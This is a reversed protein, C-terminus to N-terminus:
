AFTIYNQDALNPIVFSTTHIKQWHTPTYLIHRAALRFSYKMFNRSMAGHASAKGRVCVCVCVCVCMYIYIYIYINFCKYRQDTM